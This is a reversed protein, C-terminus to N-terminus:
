RGAGNAIRAVIVDFDTDTAAKTSGLYTNITKVSTSTHVVNFAISATSRATCLVIGDTAAIPKDLTLTFIGAGSRGFACGRAVNASGDSHCSGAAVVDFLIKHAM